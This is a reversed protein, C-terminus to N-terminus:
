RGEFWNPNSLVEVNMDSTIKTTARRTVMCNCSMACTIGAIHTYAYEINVAFVSTKGGIGM